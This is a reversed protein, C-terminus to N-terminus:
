LQTLAGDEKLCARRVDLGFISELDEFRIEDNDEVTDHLRLVIENSNCAAEMAATLVTM